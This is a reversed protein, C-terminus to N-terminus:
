VLVWPLPQAVYWSSFFPVPHPDALFLPELVVKLVTFVDSILHEPILGDSDWSCLFLLVPFLSKKAAEHHFGLERM